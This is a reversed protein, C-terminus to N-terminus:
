QGREFVRVSGDGSVYYLLEKEEIEGGNGGGGDGGGDGGATIRLVGSVDRAAGTDLLRTSLILDSNHALSTLFTSSTTQLPTPTSSTQSSPSSSSPSHHLFPTDIPLTIITAHVLTRLQHLLTTLHPLTTTPSPSTALLLSPSDLILITKSSSSSSSLTTIAKTLIQSIYPLSPDTLIFGNQSTSSPTPSSSPPLYLSTLGDIFIFRNQLAAKDLDLNGWLDKM